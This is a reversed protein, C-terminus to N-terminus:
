VEEPTREEEEREDEPNALEMIESDDEIKKEETQERKVAQEDDKVDAADSPAEKNSEAEMEKEAVAEKKEAAEEEKKKLEEVEQKSVIKLQDEKKKPMPRSITIPLVGALLEKKAIDLPNFNMDEIEKDSIKLLLPADMAIQLARAGLIRAIEYKTFQDELQEIPM